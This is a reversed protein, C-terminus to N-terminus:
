GSYDKAEVGRDDGNNGDRSEAGLGAGGVAGFRFGGKAIVDHGHEGLGSAVGTGAVAILIALGAELERKAAVIRLEVQVGEGAVHEGAADVGGIGILAEEEEFGGLSFVSFSEYKKLKKCKKATYNVGIKEM